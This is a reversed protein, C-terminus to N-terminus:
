DNSQVKEVRQRHFIRWVPRLLFDLNKNIHSISKHWIKCEFVASSVNCWERRQRASLIFIPIFLAFSPSLTELTYYASAYAFSRMFLHPSFFVSQLLNIVWKSKIPSFTIWTLHTHIRVRRPETRSLPIRPMQCVLRVNGMRTAHVSLTPRLKPPWSHSVCLSKFEEIWAFTIKRWQEQAVARNLAEANIYNLM